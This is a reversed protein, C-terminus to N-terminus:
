RVVIMSVNARSIDLPCNEQFYGVWEYFGGSATAIFWMYDLEM